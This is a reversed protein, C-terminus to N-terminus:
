FNMSNNCTLDCTCEIPALTVNAFQHYNCTISAQAPPWYGWQRHFPDTGHMWQGWDHDCSRYLDKHIAGSAHIQLDCSACMGDSKVVSTYNSINILM